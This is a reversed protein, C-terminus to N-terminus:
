YPRDPAKKNPINFEIMKLILTNRHIGLMDAAKSQNGNVTKLTRIIVQREFEHVAQKLPVQDKPNGKSQLILQIPLASVGIEDEECLVVVTEALHRLERVNGPFAHSRLAKIVSPSISPSKKRHDQSVENIFHVFLEEIDNERDRLPPIEVPVGCLRWYLDERFLGKSVMERLDVNSSSIVRVDVPILRNSGLRSLEREQLVRLLKSQSEMPLTAVDDLFITGGSAYEFKGIRTNYASSFAGKEHGFLESEVLNSPISGCSIPVFRERKRASHHHITRAVMEKGTGSEGTILVTSDHIAMKLLRERLAKMILSSGLIKPEQIGLQNQRLLANENSLSWKETARRVIALLEDVNWPKSIFDYAGSKMCRVAQEVDRVATVVVVETSPWSAKIAGLLAEGNMGPLGIDCLAVAFSKSELVKIAEEASSAMTLSFEDELALGLAERVGEEDDVILIHQRSLSTV